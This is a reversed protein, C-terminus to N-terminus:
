DRYGIELALGDEAVQLRGEFRARAERLLTGPENDYRTSLHSLVLHEVGAAAAVQAAEEATSHRTFVARDADAASFTSEHVLLDAAQAAEILAECPRTDGSFALKRGSRPPGLVADPPITRGGPLTVSEGRQLTGFLPGQPIGLARAKHVDFVGPRAPEELVYGLAPGRHEVGVASIRYDRRQIVDGPALPVLNLAFPLAEGLTRIMRPLERDIFPGPGYLDLPDSREAMALTRLFGLIVLFHDAHFHTFLVLDLAFGTGFRVMQRQTGEGCDVLLREGHLRVATGSLGRRATPQAASTGLLTVRM